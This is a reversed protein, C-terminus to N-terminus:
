ARVVVWGRHELAGEGQMAIEAQRKLLSERHQGDVRCAGHADVLLDAREFLALLRVDQYDALHLFSLSGVRHDRGVSTSPWTTERM